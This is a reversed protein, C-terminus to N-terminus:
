ATLSVPQQAAIYACLDGLNKLQGSSFPEPGIDVQYGMKIQLQIEVYDLSDFALEDFTMQPVLATADIDKLALIAQCLFAPITM